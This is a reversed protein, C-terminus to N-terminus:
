SEERSIQSLKEASPMSAEFGALQQDWALMAPAGLFENVESFSPQIWEGSQPPVGGAKLGTLVSRMAGYAAFLPDVPYIILSFGLEALEAPALPADRRATANFMLPGPVDAAIRELHHRERVSDIVIVDAGSALYRNAREVTSNLGETALADVRGILAPGSPGVAAAAARLRTSAEDVPLIERKGVHGSRKPNVQDEIQIATVGIEALEAVTRAVNLSGGYGTDADVILPLDTAWRLRRYVSMMDALGNVGLDPHGFASAIGAYGGCFAAGFGHWEILRASIADFAGPAILPTDTGLRELLWERGQTTGRRRFPPADEDNRQDFSADM